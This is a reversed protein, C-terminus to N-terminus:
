CNSSQVSVYFLNSDASGLACGPAYVMNGWHNGPTPSARFEVRRATARETVSLVLMSGGAFRRVRVWNTRCNPSWRLEVIGDGTDESDVTVAGNDCRTTIPDNGDCARGSCGSAQAPQAFGLTTLV